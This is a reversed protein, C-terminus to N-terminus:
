GATLSDHGNRGFCPQTAPQYVGLISANRNKVPRQTCAPIVTAVEATPVVEATPTVTPGLSIKKAGAIGGLEGLEM